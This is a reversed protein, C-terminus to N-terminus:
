SPLVDQINKWFKKQDGMNNDLNHKIFDAKADRLRKVCHNRYRTAKIWLQKDKRKRAHKLLTDKDKILELLENTIWQEKQQKVRFHKLPCMIDIHNRIINEFLEWKM